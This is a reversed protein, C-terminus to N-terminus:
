ARGAGPRHRDQRLHAPRARAAPAPATRTKRTAWCPTTCSRSRARASAWAIGCRAARFSWLRCAWRRTRRNSATWWGPGSSTAATPLRRPRPRRNAAPDGVGPGARHLHQWHHHADLRLQPARLSPFKGPTDQRTPLGAREGLHLRQGMRIIAEPGIRLGVTIFYSNSSRKLARRFNFDGPEALDKFTHNGVRIHGKNPQAPNPEVHIIEEPNLGAELAAMGVVTKFISGPM